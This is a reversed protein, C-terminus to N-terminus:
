KGLELKFNLENSVVSVEQLTLKLFLDSSVATAASAVVGKGQSGVGYGFNFQWSNQHNGFKEGSAVRWGAITLYEDNKKIERSEYNVFLSCILGSDKLTLVDYSLESHTKFTNSVYALKLNDFQSTINWQFNNQNDLGAIANLAFNENKVAFKIGAELSDKKSNGKATLTLGSVVGWKLDFKQEQEDTYFNLVFNESAIAAELSDQESNGKATLTLGSAVGWKLDFKQEQEDTYLNLVFNDSPKFNLHSHLEIGEKGTKVSINTQLPLNSPKYSLQTFGLVLNDYVFGVGVTVDQSVGQQFAVGGRFDPFEGLVDTKEILNKKGGGSVTLSSTGKPLSPFSSNSQVLNHNNEAGWTEVATLGWYKEKNESSWFTNQFGLVLNGQQQHYTFPAKELSLPKSDSTILNPSFSNRNVSWNDISNIRYIDKTNDISLFYKLTPYNLDSDAALISYNQDSLTKASLFIPETPKSQQSYISEAWAPYNLCLCCLISGSLLRTLILKM